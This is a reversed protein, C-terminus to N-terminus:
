HVSLSADNTRSYLFETWCTLLPLGPQIQAKVELTNELFNSTQDDRKQKLRKMISVWPTKSFPSKWLATQNGYFNEDALHFMESWFWLFESFPWIIEMHFHKQTIKHAIFNPYRMDVSDEEQIRTVKRLMDQLCSGMLPKM